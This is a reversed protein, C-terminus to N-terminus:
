LVGVIKSSVIVAERPTDFYDIITGLVVKQLTDKDDIELHIITEVIETRDFMNPVVESLVGKIYNRKDNENM